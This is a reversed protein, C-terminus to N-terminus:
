CGTTLSVGLYRKARTESIIKITVFNGPSKFEIVPPLRAGRAAAERRTVYDNWQVVLLFHIPWSLLYLPIIWWIPLALDFSRCLIYALGVFAPAILLRPLNHALFVIGPASAM